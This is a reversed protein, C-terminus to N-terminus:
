ASKGAVRRPPPQSIQLRVPPPRFAVLFAVAGAIIFFMLWLTLFERGYFNLSERFLPWIGLKLPVMKNFRLYLMFYAVRGVSVWLMAIVAAILGLKWSFHRGSGYVVLLGVGFGLVWGFIGLDKNIWWAIGAYAAAGVLGGLMGFLIAKLYSPKTTIEGDYDEPIQMAVPLNAAAPRSERRRARPSKPVIEDAGEVAPVAVPVTEKTKKARDASPFGEAAMVAREREDKSPIPKKIVPARGPPAGPAAKPTVMSPGTLPPPLGEVKLPTEPQPPQAVPAFPRESSTPAEGWFAAKEQPTLTPAPPAPPAPPPALDQLTPGIPVEAPKRLKKEKAAKPEKVKPEKPPKAEKEPKPEKVKPEKRGGMQTALREVSARHCDPCYHSERTEKVCDRCYPQGCSLCVLDAEQGPHFKCEL